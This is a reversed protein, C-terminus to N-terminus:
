VFTLPTCNDPSINSNNRHLLMNQIITNHLGLGEWAQLERLLQQFVHKLMRHFRDPNGLLEKLWAQGTLASIYMPRPTYRATWKCLGRDISCSSGVSGRHYYVTWSGDRKYSISVTCESIVTQLGPVCHSLLLLLQDTDHLHDVCPTVRKWIVGRLLTLLWAANHFASPFVFLGYFALM